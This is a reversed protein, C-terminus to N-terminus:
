IKRAELCLNGLKINIKQKLMNSKSNVIKQKFNKPLPLLWFLHKLSLTSKSSYVKKVLFKNKEFIKTITRPNYLFTHEIDIIPSKEGLIKATLSNINHNFALIYAKTKLIQNCITLFKNPEPIHDLTQFFFIFDFTEKKYIDSKLINIILNKKIKPDSKNVANISPEIGFVNKFGLDYIAKLVFGNGCGIELIKANKPLKSLINQSNNLYSITINQIEDDYTLLSKQYLTNLHKIDITPTSRVLECNKCKVIQYHIKDPLRRASFIKTNLDSIKFNKRYLVQYKKQAGCIPCKINKLKM